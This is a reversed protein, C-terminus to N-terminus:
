WYIHIGYLIGTSIADGREQSLLLFESIYKM